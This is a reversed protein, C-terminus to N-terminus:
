TTCQRELKHAAEVTAKQLETPVIEVVVRRFIARSTPLTTFTSILSCRGRQYLNVNRGVFGAKQGYNCQHIFVCTYFLTLGVSITQHSSTTVCCRPYVGKNTRSAMLPNFTCFTNSMLRANTSFHQHQKTVSFNHLDNTYVSRYSKCSEIKYPHSLQRPLPLKLM